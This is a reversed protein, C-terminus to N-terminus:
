LVRTSIIGQGFLGPVLFGNTWDSVLVTSLGRTNPSWIINNSTYVDVEAVSGMLGNNFVPFSTDGILRTTVTAGQGTPFVNARVEFYRTAGEPVQLASPTGLADEVYVEVFGDADPHLGSLRLRGDASLGLAPMSYQPDTFVFVNLDEIEAGFVNINFRLKHIGVQTGLAKVEFRMLRGDALGSTPLSGLSFQPFGKYVKVGSGVSQGQVSAFAGSSLGVGRISTVDISVFAGPQGEQNIGVPSFDAKITLEVATDRPVIVQKFFTIHSNTSGLVFVGRGVLEEGNWVTTGIVDASTGTRLHLDLTELRVDDYQAMISAVNVVVGESGATAIAASPNNPSSGISVLAEGVVSEVNRFIHNPDPSQRYYEVRDFGKGGDFYIAPVPFLVSLNDDGLGGFYRDSSDHGFAFFSDNGNGGIAVNNGAGGYFDSGTQGFFARMYDDGDGGSFTADAFSTISDKGAGGNLIVRDRSVNSGFFVIRDNGFGGEAYVCTNSALSLFDDDDGGSINIRTDPSGLANVSIKDKGDGSNISFTLISLASNMFVSIHDSGDRTSIVVERVDTFISVQSWSRVTVDSGNSNTSLGTVSVVVSDNSNTGEVTLRGFADVSASPLSASLMLRSELTELGHFSQRCKRGSKGFFM